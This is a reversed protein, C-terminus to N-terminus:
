YQTQKLIYSFMQELKKLRESINDLKIEIMSNDTQEQTNESSDNHKENLKADSISGLRKGLAGNVPFLTLEKKLRGLKYGDISIKMNLARTSMKDITEKNKKYYRDFEEKSEFHLNEDSLNNFVRISDSM